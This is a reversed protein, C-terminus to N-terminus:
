YFLQQKIQEAVEVGQLASIVALAFDFAAGPGRGTIFPTDVVAPVHHYNVGNDLLIQRMSPYCVANKNRLLGLEALVTPAACIAAIWKHHSIFQQLLDHLARYKDPNVKGGPLVIVDYQLLDTQTCLRDAHINVNHASTVVESEELSILDVSLNARRFLDTPVLAEADEFGQALLLAIKQTM